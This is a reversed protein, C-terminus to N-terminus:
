TLVMWFVGVGAKTSIRLLGMEESGVSGGSINAGIETSLDRADLESVQRLFTQVLESKVDSLALDNDEAVLVEFINTWVSLDLEGLVETRDLSVRRGSVHLSIGLEVDTLLKM